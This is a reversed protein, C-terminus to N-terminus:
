RTEVSNFYERYLRCRPEIGDRDTFVITGRRHLRCRTLLPLKTTPEPSRAVSVMTSFLDELELCRSIITLHNDYIALIKDRNGCAIVDIVRQIGLMKMKDITLNLLSPIGGIWEQIQSVQRETLLLDYKSFLEKSEQASFEELEITTGVNFPSSNVDMPMLNEIRPTSHVLILRFNQWSKDIKTKENISRLLSFFEQGIEPYELLRDLKFIALNL